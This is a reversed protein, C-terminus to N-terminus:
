KLISSTTTGSRRSCDAHRAPTLWLVRAAVPRVSLWVGGRDNGPVNERGIEGRRGRLTVDAARTQHARLVVQHRVDPQCLEDADAHGRPEVREHPQGAPVHM